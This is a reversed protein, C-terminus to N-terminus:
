KTYIKRYRLAIFISLGMFATLILQFWPLIGTHFNVALLGMGYNSLINGTLAYTMIISFATGSATTCAAGVYGLILPFGAALGLGLLIYATVIMPLTESLATLLCGSAILALSILIIVPSSIKNFLWGLILRGATYSAMFLSLLMLSIQLDFGAHFSLFSTTWNNALSELSGQFFAVLGFFVLVPQKAMKWWVSFSFATKHKVDPFSIILFLIIPLLILLGGTKFIEEYSFHATLLRLLAPTGLAGIGYFVGLISFNASRTKQDTGSIENILAATIGNMMGGGFGIIMFAPDLLVRLQRIFLLEMGLSISLAAIILPFRFSYRDTLPGFVVSGLLIGFALLSALTGGQREILGYKETLYPLLSGLSVIVIGFLFIGTYASVAPWFKSQEDIPSMQTM